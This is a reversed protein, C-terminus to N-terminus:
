SLSRGSVKGPSLALAALRKTSAIRTSVGGTASSRTVPPPSCGATGADQRRLGLRARRPGRRACGALDRGALSASTGEAALLFGNAEALAGARAAAIAAAVHFATGCYACVLPQERLYTGADELRELLLATDDSARLLAAYGLPLLHGSLPSWRSLVLADALLTDGEAM